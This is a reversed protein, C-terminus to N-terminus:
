YRGLNFKGRDMRIVLQPGGGNLTGDIRDRSLGQMTLPMDSHFEERRGANSHLSLKQTQPVRLDVNGRHTDFRSDGDIQVNEFTMDTRDGEVNLSGRMRTVRGSGRDMKLRLTGALDWTEVKTRDTELDLNGEVSRVTVDSRDGDVRLQLNRPCRIELNVEPLSRSRSLGQIRYPVNEFNTAVTLSHSDGTVEIRTAEVAERAYEESVGQPPEIRAFVDLQNREWSELKLTTRDVRVTLRGGADLATNKRFEKGQAGHAFVPLMSIAALVTVLVRELRRTELLNRKRITM